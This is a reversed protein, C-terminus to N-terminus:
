RWYHRWYHWTFYAYVPAPATYAVVPTVTAVPTTGADAPAPQGCTNVADGASLAVQVGPHLVNVLVYGGSIYDVYVPDSYLWATPWPDAFGFWFGGFQFSAQSGIMVPHGIHFQHGSGFSAHFRDDPIHSGGRLNQDHGHNYSANRFDHGNEHANGHEPGRAVNRHDDRRANSNRADPRSNNTRATNTRSSTSRNPTTSRSATTPRSATSPRSASTNPRATSPRASSQSPRSANPRSATNPRSFNSRSANQAPRAMNNRAPSAQRAAPRAPASRVSNSANENRSDVSKAAVPVALTAALALGFSALRAARSTMLSATTKM